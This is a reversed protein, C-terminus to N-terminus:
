IKPLWSVYPIKLFKSLIFKIIISFLVSSVMFVGFPLTSNLDLFFGGCFAGLLGFNNEPDEILNVVIIIAVILNFETFISIFGTQIITILFWFFAILFIKIVKNIM